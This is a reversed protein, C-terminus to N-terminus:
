KEGLQSELSRLRSELVDLRERLQANEARLRTLEFDLSKTAAAVVGIFDGLSVSLGDRTAIPFPADEAIVGVHLPQADGETKFRYTVLETERLVDAMEALESGELVAIDKKLQRSSSGSFNDAKLNGHVQMRYGSSIGTGGIAVDGFATVKVGVHTNYNNDKGTIQLEEGNSRIQFRDGCNAGSKYPNSLLLYRWTGNPTNKGITLNGKMTDSTGANVFRTDLDSLTNGSLKTCDVCEAAKDANLAQLAVLAEDANAANGANTATDAHTAKSAFEAQTASLAYPVTSVPLRPTLPAGGDLAMEVWVEKTNSFVAAVALPNGEGDVGADMALAFYGDVIDVAKEGEVDGWTNTWVLNGESAADFLSLTLVAQFSVGSGQGDTLRGNYNVTEATAPASAAILGAVFLALTLKRM